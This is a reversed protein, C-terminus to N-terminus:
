CSWQFIIPSNAISNWSKFSSKPSRAGIIMITQAESHYRIVLAFFRFVHVNRSLLCCCCQGAAAILSCNLPSLAFWQLLLELPCRHGAIILSLSWRRSDFPGRQGPNPNPFKWNNSFVCYECALTLNAIQQAILQVLNHHAWNTLPKQDFNLSSDLSLNLEPHIKTPM